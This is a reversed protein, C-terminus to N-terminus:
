GRLYELTLNLLAFPVKIVVNDSGGPAPPFTFSLYAPSSVIKEYAPDDTNWLYYRTSSDFSIPLVGALNDCTKRPFPLYPSLPNPNVKVQGGSLLKDKTTFNFPSDGDETGIGIDVLDVANWDAFSTVPAIVRGKNYGGFVLSGPYDFAASGIHLGYSYSPIEGDKYLKGSFLAATFGEDTKSNSTSFFQSLDEAGLALSGLTVGGVVGNPYTVNGKEANALSANWVSKQQYDHRSPHHACNGRQYLVLQRDM